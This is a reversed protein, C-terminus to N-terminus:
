KKFIILLIVILVIAAVASIALIKPTNDVQQTNPYNGTKAQMIGTIGGFISQLWGASNDLLKNWLSNGNRSGSNNSGGSAGWIGSDNSIDTDTGVTLYPDYWNSGDAGCVKM